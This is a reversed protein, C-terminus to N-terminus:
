GRGNSIIWTTASNATMSNKQFAVSDMRYRHEFEGIAADFRAVKEQYQDRLVRLLKSLIRDLGADDGAISELLHLKEQITAM